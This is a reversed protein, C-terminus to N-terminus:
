LEELEIIKISIDEKKIWLDEIIRKYREIKYENVFILLILKKNFIKFKKLSELYLLMNKYGKMKRNFKEYSNNLEVEILFSTNWFNLIWDAIMLNELIKKDEISNISKFLEYLQYQSIYANISIDKWVKKEIVKKIFFLAKWIYLEHFYLSNTMKMNQNYIKEWIIVQIEDLNNKLNKLSFIQQWIRENRIDEIYWKDKLLKLRRIFSKTTISDDVLWALTKSNIVKIKNLISFIDRDRQKIIINKYM